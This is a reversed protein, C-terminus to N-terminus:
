ACKEFQTINLSLTPITSLIQLIAAPSAKLFHESLCKMLFMIVSEVGNDVDVDSCVGLKKAIDLLVEMHPILLNKSTGKIGTEICPLLTKVHDGIWTKAIREADPTDALTSTMIVALLLITIKMNM